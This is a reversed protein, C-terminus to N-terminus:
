RRKSRLTGWGDEKPISQTTKYPFLMTHVLKNTERQDQDKKNPALILESLLKAKSARQRLAELYLVQLKMFVINNLYDFTYQSFESM